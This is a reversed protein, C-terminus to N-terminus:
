DSSFSIGQGKTVSLIRFFLTTVGKMLCHTAMAAQTSPSATLGKDPHVHIFRIYNMSLIRSFKSTEHNKLAKFQYKEVIKVM